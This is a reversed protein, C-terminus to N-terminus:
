GLSCKDFSVACAYLFFQLDEYAFVSITWELCFSFHSSLDACFQGIDQERGDAMLGSKLGM